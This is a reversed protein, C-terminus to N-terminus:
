RCNKVPRLFWLGRRDKRLREMRSDLMRAMKRPLRNWVMGRGMSDGPDTVGRDDRDERDRKLALAREM